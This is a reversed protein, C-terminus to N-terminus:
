TRDHRGELNFSWGSVIRIARRGRKSGREAGDSREDPGLMIAKKSQVIEGQFNLSVCAFTLFDLDSLVLKM